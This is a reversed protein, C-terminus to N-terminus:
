PATFWFPEADHRNQNADNELNVNGGDKPRNYRDTQQALRLAPGPDSEAGSKRKRQTSEKTTKYKLLREALM